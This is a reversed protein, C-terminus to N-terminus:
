FSVFSLSLNHFSLLCPYSKLLKPWFYHKPLSFSGMECMKMDWWLTKHCMLGRETAEKGEDRESCYCQERCGEM